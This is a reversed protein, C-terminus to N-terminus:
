LIQVQRKSAVGFERRDVRQWGDVKHLSREDLDVGDVCFQSVLVHKNVYTLQCNVQAVSHHEFLLLGILGHIVPLIDVTQDHPGLEPTDMGVGVLIQMRENIRENLTHVSGDLINGRENLKQALM